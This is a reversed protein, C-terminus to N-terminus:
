WLEYTAESLTCDAVKVNATLEGAFAKLLISQKLEALVDTKHNYIVVLSQKRGASTLCNPSSIYQGFMKKVWWVVEPWPPHFRLRDVSDNLSFKRSFKGRYALPWEVSGV